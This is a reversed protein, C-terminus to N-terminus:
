ICSMKSLCVFDIYIYIYIDLDFMSILQNAYNEASNGERKKSKANLAPSSSAVSGLYYFMTM